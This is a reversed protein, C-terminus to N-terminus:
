LLKIKWPSKLRGLLIINNKRGQWCQKFHQLEVVSDCKVWPEFLDVLCNNVIQRTM